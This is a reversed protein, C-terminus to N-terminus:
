CLLSEVDLRTTQPHSRAPHNSRRVVALASTAVTWVTSDSPRCIFCLQISYMCYIEKNLSEFGSGPFFLLLQSLAPFFQFYDALLSGCLVTGTLYFFSVLLHFFQKLAYHAHLDLSWVRDLATDILYKKCAVEYIYRNGWESRVLGTSARLHCLVQVKSPCLQDKTSEIEFSWYLFSFIQVIRVIAFGDSM